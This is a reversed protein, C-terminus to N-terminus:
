YAYLHAYRGNGCDLIGRIHSDVAALSQRQYGSGPTFSYSIVPNIVQNVMPIGTDIQPNRDIMIGPSVVEAKPILSFMSEVSLPCLLRVAVVAWLVGRIWKPAKKLVLRLLLVALVIYSASISMNVISLFLQTM